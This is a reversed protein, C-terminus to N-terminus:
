IHYASQSACILHKIGNGRGPAVPFKNGLQSQMSIPVMTSTRTLPLHTYIIYAVELALQWLTGHHEMMISCSTGLPVTQLEWLQFFFIRHHSLWLTSSPCFRLWQNFSLPKTLQRVWMQGCHSYSILARQKTRRPSWPENPVAAKDKRHWLFWMYVYIDM